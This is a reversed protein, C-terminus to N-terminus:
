PLAFNYHISPMFLFIMMKICLETSPFILPHLNEYFDVDESGSISGTNDKMVTQQLSMQIALLREM